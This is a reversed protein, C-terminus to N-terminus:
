TDQKHHSRELRRAYTRVHKKAGAPVCAAPTRSHRTDQKIHELRRAHLYMHKKRGTLYGRIEDSKTAGRSGTNRDLTVSLCVSLRVYM